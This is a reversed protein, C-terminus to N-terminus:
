TKIKIYIYNCSDPGKQSVILGYCLGATIWLYIYGTGYVMLECVTGEIYYLACEM